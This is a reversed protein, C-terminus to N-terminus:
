PDPKEVGNGSEGNEEGVSLTIKIGFKELVIRAAINHFVLLLTGALGSLFAYEIFHPSDEITAGFFVRDLTMMMIGLSFGMFAYAAVLSWTMKKKGVVRHMAAASCGGLAGSVAAVAYVFVMTGLKIESNM